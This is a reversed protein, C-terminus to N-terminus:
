EARAYGGMSFGTIEGSLVAKWIEDNRVKVSLWWTGEKIEQEGISFATPAQYSEIVRAEVSLGKHMLKISQSNEMFHVMAKWIEESTTYDGQADEVDPEYVVGGVVQEMEQVKLLRFSLDKGKDLKELDVAQRHEELHAKEEPSIIAGEQGAKELAKKLAAKHLYLTGFSYRGEKSSSDGGRVWHHSFGWTRAKDLDGQKAFALRPLKTKDVSQWDPEDDALQSNHMLKRQEFFGYGRKTIDSHSKVWARAKPITWGDGKPFRLAQLTTTTEGEMKGIIGYVRPKSQQIAIRRFSDQQFGGPNRIRYRIENESEEFGPKAVVIESSPGKVAPTSPIDKGVETGCDPCNGPYLSTMGCKFCFYLGAEEESFDKYDKALGKELSSRPRLVLDFLPMIEKEDELDESKHFRVPKSIQGTLASELIDQQRRNVSGKLYLDCFAAAKPDHLFEGSLSVFGDSLVLDGISAPDLGQMMRKRLLYTDISDWNPHLEREEMEKRLVGYKLLFNARGLGNSSSLRNGHFHSRWVQLSRLRLDFLQEDTLSKALDTNLDEIRM